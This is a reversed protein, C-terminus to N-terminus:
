YFYATGTPTAKRQTIKPRKNAFRQIIKHIEYTKNDKIPVNVNVETNCLCFFIRHM